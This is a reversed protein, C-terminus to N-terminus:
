IAEPEPVNATVKIVEVRSGAEALTDTSTGDEAITM